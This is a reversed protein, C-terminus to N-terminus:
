NEYGSTIICHITLFIHFFIPILKQYLNEIKQHQTYQKFREYILTQEIINHIIM